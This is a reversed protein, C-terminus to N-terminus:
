PCGGATVSISYHAVLSEQSGDLPGLEVCFGAWCLDDTCERGWFVRTQVAPTVSPRTIAFRIGHVPDYLPIPPKQAYLMAWGPPPPGTKEDRVAATFWVASLENLLCVTDGLQIPPHIEARVDVHGGEVRYTVTVQGRPPITEFVPHICLIRRLPLVPRMIINQFAPLQMYASIGSEIWRTMWPLPNGRISWSMRTDITFTRILAGEDASDNWSRSFYTYEHDRVAVSGIGMGEGTLNQDCFFVLLGRALGQSIGGGLYHGDPIVRIGNMFYLETFM